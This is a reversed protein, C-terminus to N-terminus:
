RNAPRSNQSSLLKKYTVIISAILILYVANNTTFISGTSKIPFAELILSIIAACLFSNELTNDNLSKFRKIIFFVFLLGIVLVVSFGLIGTELLIEIYYNHPHNSCLREVQHTVLKKCDQRFSKIGSGFIKNKTWIDIATLYIKLHSDIEYQEVWFFEFDDVLDEGKWVPAQKFRQWAASRYEALPEMHIDFEKDTTISKTDQNEDYPTSLDEKEQHIKKSKDNKLIKIPYTFIIHPINKYYSSYNSKIKDDFSFMIGFISFLILLSALLIKKLKNKFLFILFLGFLFSILPMKNGSFMIGIGLVCIVFMVSLFMFNKKNKLSFAVFFISFFSFNKIFSGAILEDGFFGSNHHGLSKLGLINFGFIYQYIVDLSVLLPIFAASLFFYKFDLIDFKSLLYLIVLM